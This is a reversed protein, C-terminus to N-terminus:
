KRESKIYNLIINAKAESIKGKKLLYTVIESITTISELIYGMRNLNEKGGQERDIVVIIRNVKAGMEELPKIGEVKSQGDTVLDDFFLIHDGSSIKGGTIRGLLGYNKSEKRVIICPIGIQYSAAALLLAGKLEISAVKDIKNKSCLGLIEKAVIDVVRRLYIPASFLYTLDIYYPSIRGSKLKFNGFKIAGSNFLSEAIVSTKNQM